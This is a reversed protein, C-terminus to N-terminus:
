ILKALVVAGGRALPARPLTSACIAVMEGDHNVINAYKKSTEWAIDLSIGNSSSALLSRLEIKNKGVFCKSFVISGTTEVTNEANGVITSFGETTSPYMDNKDAIITKDDNIISFRDLNNTSASVVAANNHAFAYLEPTILIEFGSVAMVNRTNNAFSNLTMVQNEASKVGLKEASVILYRDNGTKYYDADGSESTTKELGVPPVRLMAKGTISSIDSNAIINNKDVTKVTTFVSQTDNYVEYIVHDDIASYGNNFIMTNDSIADIAKNGIGNVFINEFFARADTRLLSHLDSIGEMGTMYLFCGETLKKAM